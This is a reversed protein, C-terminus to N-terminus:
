EPNDDWNCWYDLPSLEVTMAGTVIQRDSNLTVVDVLYSGDDCKYAGTWDFHNHPGIDTRASMIRQQIDKPIM